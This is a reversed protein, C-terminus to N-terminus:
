QIVGVATGLAGPFIMSSFILVGLIFGALMRPIKRLITLALAFLLAIVASGFGVVGAAFALDVGWGFGSRLSLGGVVILWIAIALLAWKFGSRGARGFLIKRWQRAFWGGIAKGIRVFFSGVQPPM